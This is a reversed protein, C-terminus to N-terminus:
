GQPTENPTGMIRPTFNWSFFYLLANTVLFFMLLTIMMLLWYMPMM